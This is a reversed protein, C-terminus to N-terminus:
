ESEGGKSRSSGWRWGWVMWPKIKRGKWCCKQDLKRSGLNLPLAGDVTLKEKEEVGAPDNRSYQNEM